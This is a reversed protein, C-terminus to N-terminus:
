KVFITFKLLLPIALTNYSVESLVQLLETGTYQLRAWYDTELHTSPVGAHGLSLQLFFQLVRLVDSGVQTEM